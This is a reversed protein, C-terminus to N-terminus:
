GPDDAPSGLYDAIRATVMRRLVTRFKAALADDLRGDVLCRLRRPLDQFLDAELWEGDNRMLRYLEELRECLRREGARDGDPYAGAALDHQLARAAASAFPLAPDRQYGPPPLEFECADGDAPM